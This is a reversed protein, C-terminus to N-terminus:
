AAGQRTEEDSSDGDRDPLCGHVRCENDIVCRITTEAFKMIDNRFRTESYIWDDISTDSSRGCLRFRQVRAAEEDRQTQLLDQHNITGKLYKLIRKVAKWHVTTPNELFRSAQNVAFTIDPRTAASLYMLSGVAERYPATTIDQPDGAQEPSYLEQNPDAPIAM